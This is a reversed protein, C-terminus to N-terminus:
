GRGRTSVAEFSSAIQTVDLHSNRGITGARVGRQGSKPPRPLPVGSRGGNEPDVLGMALAEAFDRSAAKRSRPRDLM